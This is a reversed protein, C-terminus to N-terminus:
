NLSRFYNNLGSIVGQAVKEQFAESQFNQEEETNSIFGLELLVAPRNNNRTVAFNEQRYDRDRLATSDVLGKQIFAALEEDVDSYYFTSVGGANPYAPTSNYHISLFADAEVLNSLTSRAILTKFNDTSRTLIVEAGLIELKQKLAKATLLNYDKEYNGSAGIAGVDYGGHGPDLVITKDKIENAEPTSSITAGEATVWSPIYGTQEQWSIQYWDGEKGELNVTEDKNISGIIDFSTSAGDRINTENYLITVTGELEETQEEPLSVYETTVWGTTDGIQLEVWDGQEQLIPYTDNQHVQGIREYNTGPGSRVNLNDVNIIAESAYVSSSISLVLLIAILLTVLKSRIKM